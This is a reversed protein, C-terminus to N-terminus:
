DTNDNEDGTDILRDEIEMELGMSAVKLLGLASLESGVFRTAYQGDFTEYSVSIVEILDANAEIFSAVQKINEIKRARRDLDTM